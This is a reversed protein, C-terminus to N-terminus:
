NQTYCIGHLSIARIRPPDSTGFSSERMALRIFFDCFQELDFIAGRRPPESTGFSSGRMALTIAFNCFQQSDFFEWEEM